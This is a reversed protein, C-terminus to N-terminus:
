PLISRAGCRVDSEVLLAPACALPDLVLVVVALGILLAGM